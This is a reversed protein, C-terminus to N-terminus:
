RKLFSKIKKFFSKKPKNNKDTINNKDAATHKVHIIITNWFREIYFEWDDEDINDLIKKLYMYRNQDFIYELKFRIVKRGPHKFKKYRTTEIIDRTLNSKYYNYLRSDFRNVEQTLSM